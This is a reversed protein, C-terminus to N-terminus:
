TQMLVLLLLLAFVLAAATVIGLPALTRRAAAGAPM